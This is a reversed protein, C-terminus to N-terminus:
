GEFREIEKIIESMEPREAPNDQLCEFVLNRLVHSKVLLVQQHRRQPDPMERICMECFLVGFSYVDVQFILLLSLLTQHLLRSPPNYQLILAWHLLFSWYTLYYVIIKVVSIFFTEQWHLVVTGLLFYLHGSQLCVSHKM